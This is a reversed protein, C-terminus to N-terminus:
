VANGFSFEMKNRYEYSLPSPVIGQWEYDYDFSRVASDLIDKIQREKMDLQTEYPLEQYRCSGCSGFHPCEPTASELPSKEVVQVLDGEAKGSRKKRVRFVIKQGEICNKVVALKGDNETGPEQCVVIGRDGFEVREVVGSYVNGKKM